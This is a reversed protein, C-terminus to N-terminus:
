THAGKGRPLLFPCFKKFVGSSLFYLKQECFDERLFLLKYNKLMVM